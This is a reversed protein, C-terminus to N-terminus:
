DHQIEWGVLVELNIRNEKDYALYLITDAICYFETSIPLRLPIETQLSEHRKLFLIM